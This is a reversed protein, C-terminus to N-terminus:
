KKISPTSEELFRFSKRMMEDFCVGYTDCFQDYGMNWFAVKKLSPSYQISMRPPWFCDSDPNNDGRLDMSLIGHRKGNRRLTFCQAPLDYQKRILPLIDSIKEVSMIQIDWGAPSFHGPHEQLADISDWSTVQKECNKWPFESLQKNLPLGTYEYEPGIFLRNKRELQVTTVMKDKTDFIGKGTEVCEGDRVYMMFPNEMSFGAEPYINKQLVTDAAHAPLIGLLLTFALIFINRM